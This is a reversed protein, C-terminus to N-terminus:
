FAIQFQVIAEDNDFDIRKDPDNPYAPDQLDWEEDNKILNLSIMANYKHIMFNAGFTIASNGDDDCDTNPDYADYRALVELWDTACYGATAYFGSSNLDDLGEVTPDEDWGEVVTKMMYEGRFKIMKNYDVSAFGGFM